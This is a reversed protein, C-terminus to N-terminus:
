TLIGRLAGFVLIRRMSRAPRRAAILKPFSFSPRLAAAEPAAKLNFCRPYFTWNASSMHCSAELQTELRLM